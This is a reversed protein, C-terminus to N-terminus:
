GQFSANECSLFDRIATAGVLREGSLVGLVVRDYGDVFARSARFNHEALIETVEGLDRCNDPDFLITGDFSRDYPCMERSEGEPHANADPQNM